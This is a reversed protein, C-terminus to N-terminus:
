ITGLRHQQHYSVCCGVRAARAGQKPRAFPRSGSCRLSLRSKSYRRVRGKWIRRRFVSSLGPCSVCRLRAKNPVCWVPNVNNDRPKFSPVPSESRLPNGDCNGTAGQKALTLLLVPVAESLGVLAGGKLETPNGTLKALGVDM